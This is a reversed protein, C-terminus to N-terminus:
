QSKRNVYEEKIKYALSHLLKLANEQIDATSTGGLCDKNLLYVLMKKTKATEIAAMINPSASTTMAILVDGENGFVAVQMCFVSAWGFDNALATILSNNSTLSICPLYVDFAYKGMMEAAFHESEAALGGNGCILIKHGSKLASVIENLM